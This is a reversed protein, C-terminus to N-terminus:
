DLLRTQRQEEVVLLAIKYQIDLCALFNPAL